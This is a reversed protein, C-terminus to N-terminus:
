RPYDGAVVAYMAADVLAGRIMLRKRLVGEFQAGIQEAARRSASNDQAVVIEIRSLGVRWLAWEIALKGARSAVGKGQASQRVWYGLNAFNNERNRQNLGISGLCRDSRADVILMDFSDGIAWAKESFRIWDMAMEARYDASAWNMWRGVTAESESIAAALESPDSDRYRRLSVVGDTLDHPYPM